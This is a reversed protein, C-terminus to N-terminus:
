LVLLTKQKDSLKIVKLRKNEVACNWAKTCTYLYEQKSMKMKCTKLQILKNRLTLAPHGHSLMEGTTVSNWFTKIKDKDHGNDIMAIATIATAFSPAVISKTSFGIKSASDYIKPNLNYENLCETKSFQSQEKYRGGKGDNTQMAKRYELVKIIGAATNNAYPINKTSFVDGTTRTKGSDITVFSNKDAGYVVLMKVPVQAMIIAHLRHQGDILTGDNLFVITQGNQQWEGREMMFALKKVHNMSIRRNTGINNKLYMDAIQPTINVVHTNM